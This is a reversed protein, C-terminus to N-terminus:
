TREAGHELLLQSIEDKNPGWVAQLPTRGFRDRVHVNAGVGLLRQVGNLWGNWSAVHLPANGYRDQVNPDARHDLFVQLIEDNKVM